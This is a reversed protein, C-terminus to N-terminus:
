SKQAFQPQMQVCQLRIFHCSVLRPTTTKAFDTISATNGARRSVTCWSRLTMRLSNLPNEGLQAFRFSKRSQVIQTRMGEDIRTSGIDMERGWAVEVPLQGLDRKSRTAVPGLPLIPNNPLVVGPPNQIPQKEHPGQDLAPPVKVDPPGNRKHAPGMAATRIQWYLIWSLLAIVSLSLVVSRLVDYQGIRRPPNLPCVKTEEVAASLDYGTQHPGVASAETFARLIQELRPTENWSAVRDRCSVCQVIHLVTETAAATGTTGSLFSRLIEDTPCVVFFKERKSTFGAPSLHAM